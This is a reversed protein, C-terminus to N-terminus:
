ILSRQQYLHNRRQCVELNNNCYINVHYRRYFYSAKMCSEKCFDIIRKYHVVVPVVVIFPRSATKIKFIDEKFSSPWIRRYNM